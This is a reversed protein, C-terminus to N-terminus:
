PQVGRTLARATLQYEGHRSILGHKTQIEYLERLWPLHKGLETTVPSDTTEIWAGRFRVAPAILPSFESSQLPRASKRDNSDALWVFQPLNDEALQTRGKFHLLALLGQEHPAFSEPRKPFHGFARLALFDAGVSEPGGLAALLVGGDISVSPAQGRISSTWPPASGLEPQKQWRVEIVSSGSRVQGDVEIEITLRYRHTYSPYALWIAGVAGVILVLLALATNRLLRM